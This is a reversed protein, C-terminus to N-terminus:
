ATKSTDDVKLEEHRVEDKLSQVNTVERKGVRVEETVVAQKDLTAREESLPIRIEQEDFNADSATQQGDMKRREIVLEERMVPVEITQTDTRVEKRIRVDGRNVRDKHVRLVEGYLRINQEGAVQQENYNQGLDASDEEYDGADEGLDAGHQQLISRAEEQRDASSVTVMAGESGSNFRNGFYRSHQDPVSLGSLSHRMDEAGYEDYDGGRDLDRAEDRSVLVGSSTANISTDNISTHDNSSSRETDGEFFEKIKEWMGTGHAHEHETARDAGREGAMDSQSDATGLSGASGSSFGRAAIGMERAQFGAAKLAEVASQAQAHTSFYGVVTNTSIDTM